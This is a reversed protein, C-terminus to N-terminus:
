ATSSWHPIELRRQADGMEHRLHQVFRAPTAILNLTQVVAGFAQRLDPARAELRHCSFGASKAWLWCFSPFSTYPPRMPLLPGFSPKV